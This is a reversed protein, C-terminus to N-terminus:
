KDLLGKKNLIKFVEQDINQIFIPLDYKSISEISLNYDIEFTGLYKRYIRYSNLRNLIVGYDKDFAIFLGVYSDPLNKENPAREKIWIIKEKDIKKSDIKKFYEAIMQSARFKSERSVVARVAIPEHIGSILIKFDVIKLRGAHEIHVVDLNENKMEFNKFTFLFIVSYIFAIAIVIIKFFLMASVRKLKV